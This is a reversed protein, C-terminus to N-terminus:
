IIQTIGLRSSYSSYEVQIESLLEKNFIKINEFKNIFIKEPISFVYRFDFLLSVDKITGIELHHFAIISDPLQENNFHHKGLYDDKKKKQKPSLDEIHYKYPNDIRIGSLLKINKGYKNQAVDCPRNIVVVIDSILTTENEKQKAFKSSLKPDDIISYIEKLLSHNNICILGPEILQPPINQTLKFHFWSNLKTDIDSKINRGINYLKDTNKSSIPIEPRNEKANSLLINDLGDFLIDRKAQVKDNGLYYTGGKGIIIKQLKKTFLDSNTGNTLHGIVLNESKNISKKWIALEEIESVSNIETEIDNRLKDFDWGGEIQYDSKQKVISIFPNRNENIIESIVDDAEDTDQSWIVLIYFSNEPVIGSVWEACKEKDLQRDSNYYIDLFILNANSFSNEDPVLDGEILDANYYKVGFGENRYLNILVNVEEKKDDIFFINPEVSLM